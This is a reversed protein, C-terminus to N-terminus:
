ELLVYSVTLSQLPQESIFFMHQEQPNQGVMTGVHDSVFQLEWTDSLHWRRVEEHGACVDYKSLCLCLMCTCKIFLYVKVLAPSITFAELVCPFM